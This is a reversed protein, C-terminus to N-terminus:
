AGSVADIDGVSIVSPPDGVRPSGGVSIVEADYFTFKTRPKAAYYLVAVAVGAGAIAWKTLKM